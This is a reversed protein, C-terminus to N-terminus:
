FYLRSRTALASMGDFGPLALDALILDVKSNLLVDTFEERTQVREIKFDPWESIVLDSILEADAESDELHLLNMAHEHIPIATTGSFPSADGVGSSNAFM